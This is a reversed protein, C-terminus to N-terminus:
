RSQFSTMRQLRLSQKKLLDKLDIMIIVLDIHREDEHYGEGSM